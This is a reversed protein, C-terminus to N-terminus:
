EDDSLQRIMNLMGGLFGIPILVVMGWPALGLYIDAGYGLAAGVLVGSLLHSVAALGKAHGGNHKQSKNLNDDSAQGGDIKSLEELLNESEDITQKYSQTTMNKSNNKDKSM